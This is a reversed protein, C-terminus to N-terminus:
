LRAEASVFRAVAQGRAITEDIGQIQDELIAWEARDKTAATIFGVYRPDAHAEEDLQSETTKRTDRVAQARILASIQALQVKRLDNFVGGPGYRARLDAVRKVLVAREALLEEIPQVSMRAEVDGMPTRTVWKNDPM